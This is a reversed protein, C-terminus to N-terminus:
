FPEQDTNMRQDMQPEISRVRFKFGCILVSLFPEQMQKRKTWRHNLELSASNSVVSAVCIFVCILFPEQDTPEDTIWRHNLRPVRFKFGCLLALLASLFLSKIQQEEEDM